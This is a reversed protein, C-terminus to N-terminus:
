FGVCVALDELQPLVSREFCGWPEQADQQLFMDWFQGSHLLKWTVKGEGIFKM